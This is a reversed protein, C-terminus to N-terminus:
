QNALAPNTNDKECTGNIFGIKNHNRLAFTMAISWMKYNETDTLKVTVIPSGNTDNPHLYLPDGFVLNLDSSSSSDGKKSSDDGAM